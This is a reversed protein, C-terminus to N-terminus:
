LEAKIGLYGAVGTTGYGAAEEYEEDLLNEVRGTLEVGEGVQYSGSLNVLTYEELTIDGWEKREGVLVANLNLSSKETPTFGLQAGWRHKPRRLLQEGQDDETRLLSGNLGLSVGGSHASLALDVGETLAESINDYSGDWWTSPDGDADFWAILNDYRTQHFILSIAAEKSLDVELGADWGASREAELDPNGYDPNFLQDISPARFGTGYVGRVRTRAGLPMSFGARWTTESGFDSHDDSRVGLTSTMGSEARYQEQLFFGNITASEEDLTSTYPGFEDSFFFSEGSETETDFGITVTSHDALYLNNIWEVKESRGAFELEMTFNRVADPRNLDHRDHASSAVSLTNEWKETPFLALRAGMVLHEADGTFNPDDGGPGGYHDLENRADTSRVNFEVSGTEGIEQVLRGSFTANEYGDKETNGDAEAAASIGETTVTSAALSWGTKGKSGRASVSGRRTGFSGGELSIEVEPDGAGKKTIIHIVGGIADSGYLTSQPGFMVEIREIDATDMHAFDFTREPNSPDNVEVGDVLVLTFRADGGRLLVSSSKGPGGQNVLDVGSVGKLADAVTRAQKEEIDEASIVQITGSVEDVPTQLRTATIVVETVDEETHNASQAIVPLAIGSLMLTFLTAVTVLIKRM